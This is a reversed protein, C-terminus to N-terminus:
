QEGWNRDGAVGAPPPPGAAVAVLAPRLLREGLMFGKQMVRVVTNEEVGETEVRMFAEHLSPDFQAGMPDIEVLGYRVLTEKFQKLVLEVGATLASENAGPVAIARELNDLVPLCDRILESNAFRRFEVMEREQRKRYNEFDAMKRLYLERLRDVELQLRGLEEHITDDAVAADASEGVAGEPAPATGEPAASEEEATDIVFFDVEEGSKENM